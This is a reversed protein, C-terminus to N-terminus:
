RGGNLSARLMAALGAPSPRRPTNATVSDQLTKTVITDVLGATMGIQGVTQPLGAQASMEVISAVATEAADPASRDLGMAYALDQYSAPAADIGFRLAPGAISALAVGHPTGITATISHGIGHVLGLGSLTLARGALHAGILMQSRAELDTGDSVARTLAATTLRLSEAAYARSM